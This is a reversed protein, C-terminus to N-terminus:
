DFANGAPEPAPDDEPFALAIAAEATAARFAFVQGDATYTELTVPGDPDLAYLGFGLSPYRARLEDLTKM